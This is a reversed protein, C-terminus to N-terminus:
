PKRHNEPEEDKKNKKSKKRPKDMGDYPSQAILGFCLTFAVLARFIMPFRSHVLGRTPRREVYKSATM